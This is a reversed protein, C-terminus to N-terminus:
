RYYTESVITEMQTNWYKQLLIREKFKQENQKSSKQADEKRQEKIRRRINKM